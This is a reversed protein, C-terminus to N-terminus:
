PRPRLDADIAFIGINTRSLRAAETGPTPVRGAAGGGADTSRAAHAFRPGTRPVALVIRIDSKRCVSPIRRRANVHLERMLEARASGPETHDIGLVGNLEGTRPGVRHVRRKM